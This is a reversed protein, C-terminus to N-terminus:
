TSGGDETRAALKELVDYGYEVCGSEMDVLIMRKNFLTELRKLYVALSEPDGRKGFSNTALFDTCILDLLASKPLKGESGAVEAARSLAAWLNHHQDEFLSFTEYKIKM